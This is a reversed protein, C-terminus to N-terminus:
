QEREGLGVRGGMNKPSVYSCIVGGEMEGGHSRGGDGEM